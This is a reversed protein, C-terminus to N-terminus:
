GAPRILQQVPGEDAAHKGESFHRPADIHTGGHEALCMNNASYRYGGAEARAAAVVELQFPKFTPWYITHEDFSYTLDIVKSEDIVDAATATTIWVLVALSGVGVVRRM